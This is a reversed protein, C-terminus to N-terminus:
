VHHVAVGHVEGETCQQTWAGHTACTTLARATARASEHAIQCARFLSSGEGRVLVAQWLHSCM